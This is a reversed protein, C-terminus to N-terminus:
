RRSRPTTTGSTASPSPRRAPFLVKTPNALKPSGPTSKPPTRHGCKAPEGGRCSASGTATERVCELPGKDDRLGLFRPHRMSGERTWETFACECVLTPAGGVARGESRPAM